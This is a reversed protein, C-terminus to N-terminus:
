LAQAAAHLCRCPGDISLEWVADIIGHTRAATLDHIAGPLAPSAWGLRGAADAIVHVNVGHRKHKGSYYPKQNAVGDIPILTGDMIASALLQIRRMAAALDEATATLLAIAEQM